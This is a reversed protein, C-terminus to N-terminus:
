RGRIEARPMRPEVKVSPISIGSKKLWNKGFTTAPAVAASPVLRVLEDDRRGVRGVGVPVPRDLGQGVSLDVADIATEGM